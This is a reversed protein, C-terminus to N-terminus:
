INYSYDLQRMLPRRYLKDIKNRYPIAYRSNDLRQKDVQKCIVSIREENVEYDIFRIIRHLCNSPNILLDEYRIELYKGPAIISKHELIYTVYTEWLKFCYEFDLTKRSYDIPFLRKYLKSQQKQSRRHASIAVDVGNRLVHLIRANPFINLWIPFTLSNRPDKWGWHINNGHIIKEWLPRGFFVAILPNQKIFSRDDLLERRLVEAQMIPNFLKRFDSLRSHFLAKQFSKSNQHIFEFNDSLHIYPDVYGWDSGTESFLHRNIGLFHISEADKTLWSGMHIGLDSLLQVILSTGSRHMGLIILPKSKCIEVELENHALLM